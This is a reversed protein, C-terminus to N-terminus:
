GVRFSQLIAPVQQICVLPVLKDIAVESVCHTQNHCRNNYLNLSKKKEMEEEEKKEKKKKKKKEEKEKEEKWTGSCDLAARRRRLASRRGNRM